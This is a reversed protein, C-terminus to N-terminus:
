RLEGLMSASFSVLDDTRGARIKSPWEPDAILARGVAVLDFEGRALREAVAGVGDAEAGEGDLYSLFDRGKLGVSGVTITPLGTVKKVRGALNLGCGEFEEEWYRRTSCHLVDAGAEVVPSLLSKLQAPNEAIRAGYHGVKWQSIRLIIPYDPATARRCARIIEAAFRSRATLDGGYRDARRNTRDWFFQDILYGHAGHLEVGDFGLRRADAAGQAFAEIVEAIDGESMPSGAKGSPSLGSPSIPDVGRPMARRSHEASTGWLLPDLGVHWLQPVIKGGAAHVAEVVRAWGALAERGYFRPVSESSASARHAVVTGETIILGVGHAARRAYYAASDAGPVGGPCLERTMPAMVIRNELKLGGVTFPAFLPASGASLVSGTFAATMDEGTLARWM